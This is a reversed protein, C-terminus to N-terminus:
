VITFIILNLYTQLLKLTFVNVLFQLNFIIALRTVKKIQHFLAPTTYEEKLKQIDLQRKTVLGWLLNRQKKTYILKGPEKEYFLDLFKKQNTNLM